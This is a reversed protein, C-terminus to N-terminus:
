AADLLADRHFISVVVTSVLRNGHHQYWRRSRLLVTGSGEGRAATRVRSVPAGSPAAGHTVARPSGPSAPQNPGPEVIQDTCASAAVRTPPTRASSTWAM